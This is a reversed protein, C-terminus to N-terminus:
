RFAMNLDIWLAPRVAVEDVTVAGRYLSGNVRILAACDQDSGPSRLWWMCAPKGESTLEKYTWAGKKTAYATPAVRSNVNDSNLGIHGFYKESESYSLLFVKDQTKDGGTTRWSSYGQNDGNNLDAICVARQEESNFAKVYFDKNLWARLSCDAWTIEKDVNHYPQCDLAYKSILLVKDGQVELVIWEIPSKEAGSKKQIYSGFSVYNGTQLFPAIKEEHAIDAAVKIINKDNQIINNVDKYTGLTVLIAYAEAYNGSEIFTIAQQYKCEFVQEISNNYVGLDEFVMQALEYKHMTLAIMGYDYTCNNSFEFNSPLLRFTALIDKLSHYFGMNFVDKTYKTLNGGSAWYSIYAIVTEKKEDVESCISMLIKKVDEREHILWLTQIAKEYENIIVYDKAVAILTTQTEPISVAYAYEAVAADTNGSLHLARGLEYHCKAALDASDTYDVSEFFTLAGQYNGANMLIKGQQLHCDKARDESDNYGVISQFVTEADAYYKEQYLVDAEQYASEKARGKSDLYDISAFKNKAGAYDKAKFLAEAVNYVCQNSKAASDSYTITDYLKKADEYKEGSFLKEAQIYICEEKKTKSDSYDGLTGFLAEAEPYKGDNLLDAATRYDCEKYMTDANRYGSVSAFHAKATDYEKNELCQMALQYTSEKTRTLSDTMDGLLAFQEAAKEYEGAKFLQDAWAYRAIPLKSLSLEYQELTEYATVAADFQGDDYSRQALSYEREKIEDTQELSQYITIATMYDSKEASLDAFETRVKVQSAASDMYNGLAIFHEAAAQLDGSQWLTQANLYLEEYDNAHTQYKESLTAYIDYAEALDGADYLQDAEAKVALSASDKYDKLEEYVAISETYNKTDALAAAKLYKTEKVQDESNSFKGLQTFATIAEDYNGAMQKDSADEYLTQYTAAYTFYKEDLTTYIDYAEALNGLDVLRDAYLKSLQQETDKYDKLESYIEAAQNYEKSAELACAKQYKTEKVQVAADSYSGLSAFADISTDYLGADRDKRAAEYITQYDVAHTQYQDELTRYIDYAGAIDGGDYMQDARAKQALVASDLYNGLEQYVAISADYQGAAALASAKAYATKPIKKGSDSYDGLESYIAIADDYLGNSSLSDAKLYKTNKIQTESDTYAGLSSFIRIAEDFDGVDRKKSAAAYMEILDDAHDQYESPLTTYMEVVEPYNGTDYLENAHLELLRTKSDKYDKLEQFAISAESYQKNKMAMMANNYKISPSIVLTYVLVGALVLIACASIILICKNKMSVVRM